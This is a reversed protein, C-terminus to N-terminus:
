GGAAALHRDKDGGVSRQKPQDREQAGSVDHIALQPVGHPTDDVPISASSCPCLGPRGGAPIALSATGGLRWALSRAKSFSLSQPRHGAHLEAISEPRFEKVLVLREKSGRFMMIKLGSKPLAIQLRSCPTISDVTHSIGCPRRRNQTFKV